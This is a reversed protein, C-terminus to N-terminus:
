NLNDYLSRLILNFNHFSKNKEDESMDKCDPNYLNLEALDVNVVNATQCFVDIFKLLSYLQLGQTVRTGTFQMFYPDLSDVDISLHVPSHKCWNILRSTIGDTIHNFDDTLVKKIKYKNIIKTEENDMQRIGIYCLNEFRLYKSLYSYEDSSDIGTLFALPMGHVNKSKSSSRTNIDAHADIWIVKLDPGYRNLSASLSGISMSHDGGINIIKNSPSKILDNNAEYLNFLNKSLNHTNKIFTKNAQLFYMDNSYHHYLKTVTKEIGYRKQGLGNQSFILHKM